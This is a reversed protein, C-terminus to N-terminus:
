TRPNEIDCQARDEIRAAVIEAEIGAPDIAQQRRAEHEDRQEGPVAPNIGPEHLQVFAIALFRSFELSQRSDVWQGTYGIAAGEFLSEVLLPPARQAVLRRQAQDQDVDIEELAEVIGITM